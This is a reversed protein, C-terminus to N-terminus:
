EEFATHEIFKIFGDLFRDAIGSQYYHCQSNMAVVLQQGCSVFGLSVPTHPRVPPAGVLQRLTLDAVRITKEKRFREQPLGLCFL